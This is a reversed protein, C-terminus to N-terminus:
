RRFSASRSKTTAPESMTMTRGHLLEPRSKGFGDLEDGVARSERDKCGLLVPFLTFAFGTGVAFYVVVALETLEGNEAHLRVGNLWASGVYAAMGAIFNAIAMSLYEYPSEMLCLATFSSQFVRVDAVNTYRVGNSLWARLAPASRVM